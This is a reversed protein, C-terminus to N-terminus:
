ADSGETLHTLNQIDHINYFAGANRWLLKARQESDLGEVADRPSTTSWHPYGSGYMVLDSKNTFDM